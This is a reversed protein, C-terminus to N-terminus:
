SVLSFEQFVMGIGAARADHTSTFERAEGDVVIQGADTSYVGQLIKMLTSKGAGNEGVLAHVEGRHLDFDVDRLVPVGHFSKRIGLMSVVLGAERGVHADPGVNAGAAQETRGFEEM